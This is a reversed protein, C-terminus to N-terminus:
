TPCSIFKRLRPENITGDQNCMIGRMNQEFMSRMQWPLGRFAADCTKWPIDTNGCSELVRSFKKVNDDGSSLSLPQQMFGSKRTFLYFVVLIVIVWVAIM